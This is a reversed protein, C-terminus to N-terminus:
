KELNWVIDYDGNAKEQEMIEKLGKGFATLLDAKRILQDLEEASLEGVAQHVKTSSALANGQVMYGIKESPIGKGVIKGTVYKTNALSGHIKGIIEFTLTPVLMGKEASALGGMKMVEELQVDLSFTMLADTGTEKMIRENASNIGGLEYAPLGKLVKGNAGSIAFDTATNTNPTSYGAIDQYSKSKSIVDGSVVTVKFEAQVIATLEQYLKELASSWAADTQKPFEITTTTTITNTTTITRDGVDTANEQEVSVSKELFTKGSIGYSLVGLTKFHSSPRSTFANPKLLDYEVAGDPLSVEGKAVMGTNLNPEISVTVFKGDSYSLSYSISSLNGSVDTAPLTEDISVSLYSNKYSYIAGSAPIININRFAAAPITITSGSRLYCVDYQSKISVQNIALSVKLMSNVPIKTVDLEVVVDKTLDLTVNEKIGNVTLVKLQKTSPPITFSSQQGSTTTIQIKRPSDNAPTILSYSGVNYEVPVGDITVAGDVKCFLGNPDKNSLMIVTQDGATIWGPYFSQAVTGLEVPHLNRGVGVYVTVDDLTSTTITNKDAMKTSVKAIMKNMLKGQSLGVNAILVFAALLKFKKM